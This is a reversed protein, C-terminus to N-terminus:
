LCSEGRRGGTGSMGQAPFAAEDLMERSRGQPRVFEMFGKDQWASLHDM